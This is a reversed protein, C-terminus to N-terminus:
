KSNRYYWESWEKIKVYRTQQEYIPFYKKGDYIFKTTLFGDTNQNGFSKYGWEVLFGYGNKAPVIKMYDGGSADFIVKNDKIVQSWEAAVYWDGEKNESTLSYSKITEKKGDNDVDVYKTDYLDTISGTEKNIHEPEIFPVSETSYLEPSMSITTTPYSQYPLADLVVKYGPEEGFSVIKADFYEIPMDLPPFSNRDSTTSLDGNKEIKAPTNVGLSNRSHGLYYGGFGAVLTCAVIM